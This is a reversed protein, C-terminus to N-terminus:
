VRWPEDERDSESWVVPRESAGGGLPTSSVATLTQTASISGSVGLFLRVPSGRDPRVPAGNRRRLSSRINVSSVVPRARRQDAALRTSDRKEWIVSAHTM